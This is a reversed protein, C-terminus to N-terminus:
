PLATAPPAPLAAVQAPIIFVHVCLFPPPFVTTV